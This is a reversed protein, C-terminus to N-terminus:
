RNLQTHSSLTFSTDKVCLRIIKLLSALTSSSPEQIVETQGEEGCRWKVDVYVM